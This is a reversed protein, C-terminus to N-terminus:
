RELKDTKRTRHTKKQVTKGRFIEGAQGVVCRSIAPHKHAKEEWIYVKSIHLYKNNAHIIEKKSACCAFYYCSKGTSRHEVINTKTKYIHTRMFAYEM